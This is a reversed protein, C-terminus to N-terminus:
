ITYKCQPGLVIIPNGKIYWLTHTKGFKIGELTSLKSKELLPSTYNDLENENKM